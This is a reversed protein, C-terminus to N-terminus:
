LGTHIINKKVLDIAKMVFPEEFGEEISNTAETLLTYANNYTKAFPKNDAMSFATKLLWFKAGIKSASEWARKYYDHAAEYQELGILTEAHLRQVEPLFWLQETQISLSEAELLVDLSKQYQNTAMYGKALVSQALPLFTKAMVDSYELVGNEIKNMGEELHGLQIIAEGQLLRSMGVWSAYGEDLALKLSRTAVDFILNASDNRLHRIATQYCLACNQSHLDINKSHNVAQDSVTLALDIKSTSINTLGLYCLATTKHDLAYTPSYSRHFNPNKDYVHVASSLSKDADSFKGTVCQVAGIIRKGIVLGTSNSKRNALLISQAAIELSIKYNSRIFHLSGAGALVPFTEAPYDLAECLSLAKSYIKGADEGSIGGAGASAVGLAIIIELEIRNREDSGILKQNLRYANKLQISAEIYNSRNNSRQGAQLWYKVSLDFAGALEYHYAITEPQTQRQIASETEIWSAIRSHLEMRDSILLSEYAADRIMSHKFVYRQDETRGSLLILGADVLRDIKMELKSTTLNSLAQLMFLSFERGIVAALQAVQKSEGLDDIRSMLHESLKNPVAIKEDVLSGSSLQSSQLLSLIVDEIFLPVGDTQNVIQESLQM